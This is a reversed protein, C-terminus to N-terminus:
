RIGKMIQKFLKSKMVLLQLDQSICKVSATRKTCYILAVEGFSEGKGLTKVEQENVEIQVSGQKVMFFCAGPEGAKM